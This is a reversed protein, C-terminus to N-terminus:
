TGTLAEILSSKGANTYGVIAVVPKGSRQRAARQVERTRQVQECMLSVWGRLSLVLSSCVRRSGGDSTILCPFKICGVLILCYDADWVYM